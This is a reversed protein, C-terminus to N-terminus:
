CFFREGTTNNEKALGFKVNVTQLDGFDVVRAIKGPARVSTATEAREGESKTWTIFRPPIRLALVGFATCKFFVGARVVVVRRPSKEGTIYAFRLSDYIM